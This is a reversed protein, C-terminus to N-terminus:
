GNLKGGTLVHARNAIVDNVNMNTQTGQEGNAMRCPSPTM